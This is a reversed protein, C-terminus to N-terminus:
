FFMTLCDKSNDENDIAHRLFFEYLLLNDVAYAHSPFLVAM